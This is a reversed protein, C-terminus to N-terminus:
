SRAPKPRGQVDRLTPAKPLGRGRDRRIRRPARTETSSRALSWRLRVARANRTAERAAEPPGLETAGRSCGASPCRCRRQKTSPPGTRTRRPGSQPRLERRTPAMAELERERAIVAAPELQHVQERSFRRSARGRTLDCDAQPEGFLDAETFALGRKRSFERRATFRACESAGSASVLLVTLRSNLLQSSCSPWM